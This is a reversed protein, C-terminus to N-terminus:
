REANSKDGKRALDRYRNIKYNIEKHETNNILNANTLLERAKKNKEKPIYYFKIYNFGFKWALETELIAFKQVLAKDEMCIKLSIFDEGSEKADELIMSILSLAISAPLNGDSNRYGVIAHSTCIFPNIYEGTELDDDTLYYSALFISDNRPQSEFVTFPEKKITAIFATKNFTIMDKQGKM